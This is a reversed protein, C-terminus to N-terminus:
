KIKGGPNVWKVPLRSFDRDFSVVSELKKEQVLAAQYADIFDVDHYEYLALAASLRERNEFYLREDDLAPRLVGSIVSPPLSEKKGLFWVIEAVAMDSVFLKRKEQFAGLFLKRVAEAQAPDDELFLRLLVNTDVLQM